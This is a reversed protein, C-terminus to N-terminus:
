SNMISRQRSPGPQTIREGVSPGRSADLKPRSHILSRHAHVHLNKHPGNLLHQLTHNSSQLTLSQTAKYSIGLTNELNLASNQMRVLLLHSNSEAM